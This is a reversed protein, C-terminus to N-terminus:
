ANNVTLNLHLRLIAANNYTYVYMCLGICESMCTQRAIYVCVHLLNMETQMCECVPSSLHKSSQNTDMCHRYTDLCHTPTLIYGTKTCLYIPIHMYLLYTQVVHMCQNPCTNPCRIPTKFTNLSHILFYCSM